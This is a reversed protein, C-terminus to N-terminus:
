LGEPGATKKRAQAGRTAGLPCRLGLTTRNTQVPFASKDAATESRANIFRSKSDKSWSPVLGWSPVRSRPGGSGALTAAGPQTQAKWASRRLLLLSRRAPATRVAAQHDAALRQHWQIKERLS